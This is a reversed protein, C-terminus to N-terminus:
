IINKDMYSIGFIDRIDQHKSWVRKGDDSFRWRDIANSREKWFRIIPNGHGNSESEGSGSEFQFEDDKAKLAMTRFWDESFPNPAWSEESSDSFSEESVSWDSFSASFLHLM